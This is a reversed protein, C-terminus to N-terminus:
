ILPPLNAMWAFSAFGGIARIVTDLTTQTTTAATAPMPAPVPQAQAYPAAFLHVGNRDIEYLPAYHTLLDAKAPSNLHNDLAIWEDDHLVALIAHDERRLNDRVLLIRMHEPSVGSERLLAYKAIAYDECDGRGSALTDLPASWYDLEGYQALDSTYRVAANIARNVRALRAKGDYASATQALLLFQLAVPSCDPLSARCKALADAERKMAAEVGRWKTWLEGEPARFAFLGFPELSRATTSLPPVADSIAANAPPEVAALRVPAAPLARGERKALVGNITFFKAQPASNRNPKAAEGEKGPKWDLIPSSLLAAEAESFLRAKQKAAAGGAGAFVLAASLLCRAALHPRCFPTM